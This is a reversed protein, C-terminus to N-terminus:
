LAETDIDAVDETSDASRIVVNEIAAWEVDGDKPVLITVEDNPQAKFYTVSALLVRYAKGNAMVRFQGREDQTLTGIVQKREVPGIQKYIFSGDAAINLKLADGVVLKSKSAYNPPVPYRKKDAGLMHEGDYIGEIINDATESGTLDAIKQSLTDESAAGVSERILQRATQVSKEAGELMQLAMALKDVKSM